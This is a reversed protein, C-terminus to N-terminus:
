SALSTVHESTTKLIEQITNKIFSTVGDVQESEGLVVFTLPQIEHVLVHVRLGQQEIWRRLRRVYLEQYKKLAKKKMGEQLEPPSVDLRISKLMRHLIFLM